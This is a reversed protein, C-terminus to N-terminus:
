LNPAEKDPYFTTLGNGFDALCVFDIGDQMPIFEFNIAGKAKALSEHRVRTKEMEEVQQKLKCAQEFTDFKCPVGNKEVLARGNVHVEYSQEVGEGNLTPVIKVM